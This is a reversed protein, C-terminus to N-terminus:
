PRFVEDYKFYAQQALGAARTRAAWFGLFHYYLCVLANIAVVGGFRVVFL